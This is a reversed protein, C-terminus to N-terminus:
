TAQWHSPPLVSAWRALPGAAAWALCGARGLKAAQAPQQQPWTTLWLLQLVLVPVVLGAQDRSAVTM